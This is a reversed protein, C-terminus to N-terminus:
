VGATSESAVMWAIIVGTTTGGVILTGTMVEIGGVAVTTGGVLVGSGVEAGTVYQSQAVNTM